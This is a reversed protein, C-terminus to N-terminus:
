VIQPSHSHDVGAKEVTTHFLCIVLGNKLPKGRKTFCGFNTPLQSFFVPNWCNSNGTTEIISPTSWKGADYSCIYLSQYFDKRRKGHFALLIKNNLKILTVAHAIYFDSFITNM